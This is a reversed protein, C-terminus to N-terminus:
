CISDVIEVILKLDEERSLRHDGDEVCVFKKNDSEIHEYLEIAKEYPVDRDLKGQVLVVPMELRLPKNMVLVERSEVILKEGILYPEDSYDNPISTYGIKSFDVDCQEKHDNYLWQTFDPAAALGIYAKVRNERQKAALLAIWGGMSSGVLILDDNDTLNDIVDMADQSWTKISCDLFEGGTSGHATYDFALFGIGESKCFEELYVAKTGNMDSRFGCMFVLTVPKEEECVAPKIRRYAINPKGSRKLFNKQLM